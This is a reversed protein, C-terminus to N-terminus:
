VRDRARMWRGTLRFCVAWILAFVPVPWWVTQEVPRPGIVWDIAFWFVILPVILPAFVVMILPDWWTGFPGRDLQDYLFIGAFTAGMLWCAALFSVFVRLIRKELKDPSPGEM